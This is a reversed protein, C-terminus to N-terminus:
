VIKAVIENREFKFNYSKLNEMSKCVMIIVGVLIGHKEVCYM